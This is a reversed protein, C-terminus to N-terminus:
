SLQLRVKDAIAVPIHPLIQDMIGADHCARLSTELQGILNNAEAVPMNQPANSMENCFRQTYSVLQHSNVNKTDFTGDDLEEKIRSWLRLERVRDKAVSEMNIRKFNCEDIDIQLEEKEFEDTAILLAAQKRNITVANRRYDFSMVAVNEFMVAQERISQWYKSARTPFHVDDLVSIRMETETRFIQRKEFTDQLEGAKTIVFDCDDPSLLALEKITSLSAASYKTIDM